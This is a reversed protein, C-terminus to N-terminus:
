AVKTVHDQPAAASGAVQCVEVRNRGARKARYMAQDAKSICQHLGSGPEWLAVGISGSVALDPPWSPDSLDALRARLTEAVQVAMPLACNPLLLLFEEGGWRAVAGDGRGLVDIPRTSEVILQASKQLVSDGTAHGHCDNISKFHDLDILLLCSQDGEPGGSIANAVAEFARRNYLGTLSDRNALYEARELARSLEQTLHEKELQARILSRDQRYVAAGLGWLAPVLAITAVLPIPGIVDVYFITQPLLLLVVGALFHAFGRRRTAIVMSTVAVSVIIIVCVFTSNIDTGLTAVAPLMLGAWLGGSVFALGNYIRWCGSQAPPDKARRLSRTVAFLAVLCLANLGLLAATLRWGPLALSCLGILMLPVINVSQWNAIGDLFLRQSLHEIKDEWSDADAQSIDVAHSLPSNGADMSWFERLFKGV